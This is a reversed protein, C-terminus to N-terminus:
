SWSRRRVIAARGAARVLLIELTVSLAPHGRTATATLLWGDPDITVLQSFRRYDSLFADRAEPSVGRALDLLDGPLQGLARLELLKAVTEAQMGPLAALVPPPAHGLSVRAREVDLLSDLGPVGDVGRIRRLERVSAIAGDRPPAADHAVYWEREAGRARPVADRDRWDLIASAISDAREAGIGLATMLRVLEDAGVVNVDLRIGTARLSVSCGEVRPLSVLSDLSRWALGASDVNALARDITARAEDLCGEASWAAREQAIRNRSTGLAEHAVLSILLALSAIGVTAWLVALLAFGRRGDPLNSRRRTM